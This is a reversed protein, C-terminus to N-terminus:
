KLTAFVKPFAQPTHTRANTLGAAEAVALAAGAVGVRAVYAITLVSTGSAHRGRATATAMSSASRM